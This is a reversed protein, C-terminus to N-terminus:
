AQKRRTKMEQVIGYFVLFILHVRTAVKSLAKGGRYGYFQRLTKRKLVFDSNLAPFAKSHYLLALRKRYCIVQSAFISAFSM